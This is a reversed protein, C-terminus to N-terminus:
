YYLLDSYAPYPWYNKDTLVELADAEERLQQMFPIVVSQFKKAAAQPDKPLEALSKKLLEVTEYLRDTHASLQETIRLEANCPMGLPQKAAVTQCLDRTYHLAAPLIQHIAMDVM